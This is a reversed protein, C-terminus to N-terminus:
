ASSTSARSMAATMEWSSHASVPRALADHPAGDISKLLDHETIIGPGSEGNRPRVFVSSVRREVIVRLVERLTTEGAVFIPPSMVEGVRRRYPYSDIGTLAAIMWRSKRAPRIVERWAAQPGFAADPTIVRCAAEAEALTRVGREHLHPILALFVQAAIRADGLARHRDRVEVGLWNALTEISHDPLPQDLVRVLDRVDLARPKRWRLRAREHERELVALDFGVAYGLVITGGIWQHLEGAVKAFAPAGAVDADGLGHIATSSAPIAMGPHVLRAFDRSGDIRGREIWVGGVEIMRATAVDLGTTETDIVALSLAGLPTSSSIEALSAHAATRPPM